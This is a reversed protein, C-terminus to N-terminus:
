MTWDPKLPDVLGGLWYTRPATEESLFRSAQLLTPADM